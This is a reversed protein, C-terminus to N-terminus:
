IFVLLHNQNFTRDSIYLMDNRSTFLNQIFRQDSSSRIYICLAMCFLFKNGLKTYRIFNINTIYFGHRDNNSTM